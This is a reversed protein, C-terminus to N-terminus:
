SERKRRAKAHIFQYIFNVEAFFFGTSLGCMLIGTLGEIAGLLRWPKELVVDGYGITTYTAGSFYFASEADPLFAQWLYFIGWITTEAVHLLILCSAVWILRWSIQWLHTPPIGEFRSLFRLMLALGVAHVAVTRAVLGWACLVISFM